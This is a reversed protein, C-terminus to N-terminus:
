CPTNSKRSSGCSRGEEIHYGHNSLVCSSQVWKGPGELEKVRSLIVHGSSMDDLVEYTYSLPLKQSIKYIIIFGAACSEAGQADTKYVFVQDSHPHFARVRGEVRVPATSKAMTQAQLRLSQRLRSGSTSLREVGKGWSYRQSPHARNGFSM